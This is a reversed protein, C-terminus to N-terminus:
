KIRCISSEEEFNAAEEVGARGRQDKETAKTAEM